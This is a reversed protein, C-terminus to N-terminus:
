RNRATEGAGLAELLPLLAEVDPVVQAGADFLAQIEAWARGGTFDRDPGPALLFVPQSRSLAERALALCGVNGPGWPTPAVILADTAAALARAAGLSADSLPRFPAESAIEIGLAAALAEDSDSRNLPGATLRCGHVHLRRLVEGGSGGGCVVHVRRNLRGRQRVVPLIRPRGTYPNAEVRVDVRYVARLNERTLVEEPAGLAQVRGEASLLLLRKSTEAALDLDHSVQVITLGEEQNLRMLLDAVELRHDLDLQSTAEDLLLLAPEQALARALVVRQLEGGSLETIPRPALNLTDTLALAREVAAQGARSGVGSLGPARAYRGMAVVERALYPFTPATAQPVVAVLRAVQRRPLRHAPRDNLLVQGAAPPLAGRLLRLLTSKGCGNPGLVGLVEGARVAFSLERLVPLGRYAFTLGEVRIM